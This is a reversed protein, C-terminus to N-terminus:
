FTLSVATWADPYLKHMISGYDVRFSTARRMVYQEIAQYSASVNVVRRIAYRSDLGYITNAGVVDPDVLLIRPPNLSLNEITPLVDIRPSAPDDTQVTPKNARNEVKLATDIDMILWNISRKRYGARLFKIWAAHSIQGSSLTGDFTNIGAVPVASEGIDVDGMLIGSLDNEVKRIREGRAQATMVIGVLDLTTAELAQDSVTLGISLTPIRRAVDSLTISVMAPPEALQAIPQNASGEPARTDIVPQDFRPSNVVNTMAVMRDVASLFDDHSERLEVEILQMLVEPFLLRGSPTSNDGDPRVIKGANIVVRGDLVQKLTPPRIGRDNDATLFMGASAMFQEFTTADALGTPYHTNVYQSLSTNEDAAMRYHELGIEVEQHQGSSDVFNYRAM